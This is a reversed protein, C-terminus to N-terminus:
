VMEIGQMSHAMGGKQVKYSIISSNFVYVLTSFYFIDIRDNIALKSVSGNTGSYWNDVFGPVERFRM